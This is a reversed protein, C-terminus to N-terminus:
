QIIYIIFPSLLCPTYCLKIDGRINSPIDPFSVSKTKSRRLPELDEDVSSDLDDFLRKASKTRKGRGRQEYDSHLNQANKALKVMM